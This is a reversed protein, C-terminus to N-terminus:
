NILKIREVIEQYVKEASLNKLNDIMIAKFRDTEISVKKPTTHHGFIVTGEKGLHAAMHAPGTVNAIIYNSKKILGALEM